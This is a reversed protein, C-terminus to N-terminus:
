TDLIAKDREREGWSEGKDKRQTGEVKDVRDERERRKVSLPPCACTPKNYLHSTLALCPTEPSTLFCMVEAGRKLSVPRSIVQCVAFM